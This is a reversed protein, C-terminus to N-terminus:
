DVVHVTEEVVQAVENVVDAVDIWWMRRRMLWICEAEDVM